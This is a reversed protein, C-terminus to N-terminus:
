RQYLLWTGPFEGMLSARSQIAAERTDFTTAVVRYFPQGNVMAQVIQASFGRGALSAQMSEANSLMTFSGVVVSYARLGQGNVLSVQETRVSVDSYDTTPTVSVSSGAAPTQETSEKAYQQAYQEEEQQQAQAKEYAKKYASESSHCATLAVAAVVCLAAAMLTRNKMMKM